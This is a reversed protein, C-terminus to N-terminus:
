KPEKLIVEFYENIQAQYKRKINERLEEFFQKTKENSLGDPLKIRIVEVAIDEQLKETNLRLTCELDYTITM